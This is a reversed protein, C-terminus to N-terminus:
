ITEGRVIADKVQRRQRAIKKRYTEAEKGLRGEIGTYPPYGFRNELLVRGEMGLM